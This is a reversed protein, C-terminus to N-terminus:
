RGGPPEGDGPPGGDGGGVLRLDVFRSRALRMVVIRVVDKKEARAAELLATFAEPDKVPKGDMERVLENVSIRAQAAASGEEVDSVVVGPADAALRLAARVEYTIEKVTLGTGEDKAKKASAYDRPAQEVVLPVTRAEGDRAYELDYTTGVGWGTLLRVVANATPRWPRPVDSDDPWTGGGGSDKLDVPPADSGPGSTRRACLLVDDVRLGAKEAPSGAYVSNVVLGRSGDRTPGAVGLVEASARTLPDYEVGLWPVRRDAEGKEPMTKRDLDKALSAPEGLDAWLAAVVGFSGEESASEGRRGPRSREADEPTLRAAFGLVKGDLDLLFSGPEVTEESTFTPKDAYGRASGLSRDYEVLDRRAGARWSVTHVLFAHEARPAPPRDAPLAHFGAGAARVVFASLGRVRGEYTAELPPDRGADEVVVREIRKVWGDPLFGPVLLLDPAIALGYHKADSDPEEEDSRSLFSFPSGSGDDRSAAGYSLRVQHVHSRKSLAAAREALASLPVADGVERLVDPGKWVSDHLDVTGGFRFGLATGDDRVILDVTRDFRSGALGAAVSDPHGYSFGTGRFARRRAPGLVEAWTEAENRGEALSAAFIPTQPTVEVQAPFEVPEADVDESAELLLGGCGRLFAKPTAAVPKGARGEVRVSKVTGPPVFLDSVVVTRRDRVAFGPVRMTMRWRRHTETTSNPDVGVAGVAEAELDKRFEISVTLVHRDVRDLVTAFPVQGAGVAKADGGRARGGAGAPLAAALALSLAAAVPAAPCRTGRVCRTRPTPRTM